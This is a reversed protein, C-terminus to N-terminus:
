KDKLTLNLCRKRALEGKIDDQTPEPSVISLQPGHVDVLDGNAATSSRRKAQAVSGGTM